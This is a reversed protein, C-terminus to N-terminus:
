SFELVETDRFGLGGLRIFFFLIDVHSTVPLSDDM